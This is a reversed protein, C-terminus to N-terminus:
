HTLLKCRDEGLAGFFARVTDQCRGEGAWVIKGTGHDTVVMIYQDERKGWSKEDIGIRTLGALRDQRSRADAAVRGVIKQLTEWTTRMLGAVKRWAMQACLWAAQDEFARTFRSAHRAWPVSAVILGHSPCQVRPAGAQLYCERGHVDLSRWRRVGEGEDGFPCKRTCKPCRLRARSDPRLEVVAVERGHMGTAVRVTEIAVHEVGLLRKWVTTQRVGNGRDRTSTM